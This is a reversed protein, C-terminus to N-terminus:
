SLRSTDVGSSKMAHLVIDRTSANHDFSRQPQQHVNHQPGGGRGHTMPVVPGGNAPRNQPNGRRAAYQPMLPKSLDLGHRMAEIQLQSWAKDLSWNPFRQLLSNIEASHMVAEVNEEFFSRVDEAIAAENEERERQVAISDTFPKLKQDILSAISGTDISSVGLAGDINIGAAKLTTLIEKVTEVPKTKLGVGLQIAVAQEQVNLGSQQITQQMTQFAQLQGNLEHVRAEARTARDEARRRAFFHHRANDPVPQGREDVLKKGQQQPQPQQNNQPKPQNQQQQQNPQAGETRAIADDVNSQTTPQQQNNPQASPQRNDEGGGPQQTNDPQQNQNDTNNGGSPEDLVGMVHNDFDPTPNDFRPM